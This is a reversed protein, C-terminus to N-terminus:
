ASAPLRVAQVEADLDDAVWAREGTAAIGLPGQGTRLTGVVRGSAANVLSVTDSAYNTVWVVGDSIAVGMPISGVRTIGSVRDNQPDITMVTGDLSNTVWVGGPTAAVATPGAGVPITAVVRGTSADVRSVTDDLYNAVWVADGAIAGAVAGAGVAVDATIRGTSPDIRLARGRGFVGGFEGRHRPEGPGYVTMWLAHEGAAISTIGGERSVSPPLTTAGVLAGSAPDFAYLRAPAPYLQVATWVRGFGVALGSPRWDTPLLGMRRLDAEALEIPSGRSALTRPDIRVLGPGTHGAPWAAARYASAVDGISAVWVSSETGVVAVPGSVGSLAGTPVANSPTATASPTSRLLVSAPRLGAILAGLLATTGAGFEHLTAVYTVGNRTWFFRVHNEFYAGGAGARLLLGSWGGLEAPVADPPPGCCRGAVFLDFHLFRDPRDKAPDNEFPANYAVELLVSGPGTGAPMLRPDDTTMAGVPQPAVGPESTSSVMPRPLLSPCLVTRSTLQQARACAELVPRPAPYLEVGSAVAIPAPPHGSGAAPGSSTCAVV